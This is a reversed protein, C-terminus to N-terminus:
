KIQGRIEGGPFVTTHVNVYTVGEDIAELLEALEGPGIGQGAPGIVNAAVITGSIKAPSAPCAQTGAPGNGLNSCLFVSIGGSQHNGGFHIHAQTVTSTAPFGEYSLDYDIKMGPRDIRGRFNGSAPTSVTAPDENFGSLKARIRRDDRDNDAQLTGVPFAALLATSVIAGALTTTRSRAM